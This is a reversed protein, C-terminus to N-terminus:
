GSPRRMAILRGARVDFWAIGPETPVPGGASLARVWRFSSGPFRTNLIEPYRAVLARNAANDVLLWCSAVRYPNDGGIVAALTGAEAVKRDTSRTASGMDDFRNWIENLILTRNADDRICADVSYRPSEPRTPLEFTASRGTARAMRLLFEQADLHGADAPQPALDRSFAVALPRNLAAGIRTWVVLPAGTAVGREIASIRSQKLGVAAALDVQRIGRKRRSLRVERGLTGAISHAERDGAIMHESRRRREM